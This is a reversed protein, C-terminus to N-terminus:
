AYIHRLSLYKRAAQEANWGDLYFGRAEIRDIKDTSYRTVVEKFRRWWAVETAIGESANGIVPEAPPQLRSRAGRTRQRQINEADILQRNTPM